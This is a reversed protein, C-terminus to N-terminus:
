LDRLPFYLCFVRHCLYFCYRKQDVEWLLSFLFLIFLHSRILSLLKQVALSTMFCFSLGCFPTPFFYKCVFHGVLPYDGSYVSLERLEIFFFFFFFVCDFFHASSQFLSKELSSMLLVLCCM